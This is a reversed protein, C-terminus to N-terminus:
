DTELVKDLNEGLDKTEIFGVKRNCLLAKFDPAGLGAAREPEHILDYDPNLEKILNEFPTRYTWETNDGRLYINRVEKFYKRIKETISKDVM